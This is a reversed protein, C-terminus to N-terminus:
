ISIVGLAELVSSVLIIFIFVPAVWKVMVTYFKKMKFSGNIEVEEIITKPKVVFGVVICTLMGVVPMM